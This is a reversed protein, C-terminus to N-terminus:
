LQLKSLLEGNSQHGEVGKLVEQCTLQLDSCQLGNVPMNPGAAPEHEIKDVGM